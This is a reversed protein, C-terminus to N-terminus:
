MIYTYSMRATTIVFGSHFCADFAHYERARCTDPCILSLSAAAIDHTYNEIFVENFEELGMRKIWTFTYLCTYIYM